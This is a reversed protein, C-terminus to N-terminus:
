TFEIAGATMPNAKNKQFGANTKLCPPVALLDIVLFMRKILLFLFLWTGADEANEYSLYAQQRGGELALTFTGFTCSIFKIELMM